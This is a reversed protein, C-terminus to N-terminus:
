VKLMKGKARSELSPASATNRRVCGDVCSRGIVAWTSARNATPEGIRLSARAQPGRPTTVVNGADCVRRGGGGLTQAHLLARGSNALPLAGLPLHESFVEPTSTGTRTAGGRDACGCGPEAGRLPGATETPRRLRFQQQARRAPDGLLSLQPVVPAQLWSAAGWGSLFRAPALKARHGYGLRSCWVPTAAESYGASLARPQGAPGSRHAGPLGGPPGPLWAAAPCQHFLHGSTPSRHPHAM